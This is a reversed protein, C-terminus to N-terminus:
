EAMKQKDAGWVPKREGKGYERWTGGQQTEGVSSGHHKARVWAFNANTFVKDKKTITNRSWKVKNRIEQALEATQLTMFATSRGKRWGCYPIQRGCKETIFTAVDSETMENIGFIIIETPRQEKKQCMPIM